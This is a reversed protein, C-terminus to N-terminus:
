GACRNEADNYLDWQRQGSAKLSVRAHDYSPNIDLPAVLTIEGDKSVLM